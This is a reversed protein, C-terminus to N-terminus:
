CCRKFLLSCNSVFSINIRPLYPPFTQIIAAESFSALGDGRASTPDLQRPQLLQAATNTAPAPAPAPAPANSLISKSHLCCMCPRWITPPDRSIRFPLHPSPVQKLQLSVKTEHQKSSHIFAEAWDVWCECVEGVNIELCARDHLQKTFMIALFYCCAPFCEVVAETSRQCKSPTTGSVFVLQCQNCRFDIEGSVFKM